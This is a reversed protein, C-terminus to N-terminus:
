AAADGEDSVIPVKYDTFCLAVVATGYRKKPVISKTIMNIDKLAYDESFGNTYLEELSKRLVNKAHDEADHGNYECVLGGYKQGSNKHYLWGYIIGATAMEGEQANAHAMITEMVSGHVLADTNRKVETAIGPLISSYVMINCREIGAEKLALHYSGAHITIDSEGAGTTIFFSRPIRNGILVTKQRQVSVLQTAVKQSM